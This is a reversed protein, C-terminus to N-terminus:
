SALGDLANRMRFISRWDVDGTWGTIPSTVHLRSIGTLRVLAEALGDALGVAHRVDPSGDMSAEIRAGYEVLADVQERSLPGFDTTTGYLPDLTPETTSSEPTMADFIRDLAQATHELAQETYDTM